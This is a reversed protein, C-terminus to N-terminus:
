VGNGLTLSELLLVVTSCLIRGHSLTGRQVESTYNENNGENCVYLRRKNLTLSVPVNVRVIDWLVRLLVYMLDLVTEGRIHARM